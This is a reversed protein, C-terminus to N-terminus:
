NTQIGLEASCAYQGLGNLILELGFEFDHIGDYKRSIIRQTMGNIYPYKDAPILPLYNEAAASYEEAEFTLSVAYTFIASPQGAIFSM